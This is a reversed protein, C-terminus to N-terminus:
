KNDKLLVTLEEVSLQSINTLKKELQGDKMVLLTPISDVNYQEAFNYLEDTKNETDIYYVSVKAEKAAKKLKPAFANCFPCSERGVYVYRILKKQEKLSEEIRSSDIFYFSKTAQNYESGQYQWSSNNPIILTAGFALGGLGVSVIIKFLNSRKKLFSVECLLYYVGCILCFELLIWLFSHKIVLYDFLIFALLVGIFERHNRM